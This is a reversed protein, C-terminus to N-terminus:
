ALLDENEKGTPAPFESTREADARRLAAAGTGFLRLGRLELQRRHLSHAGDEAATRAEILLSEGFVTVAVDVRPKIHQERGFVILNGARRASLSQSWKPDKLHQLHQTSSPPFEKPFTRINIVPLSGLTRHPEFCDELIRSFGM